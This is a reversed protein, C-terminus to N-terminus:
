YEDRSGWMFWTLIITYFLMGVAVVIMTNQNHKPMFWFLASGGVYGALLLLFYEGNGKPKRAPMSSKEPTYIRRAFEDRRVNERLMKQVNTQPDKSEPAAWPQKEERPKDRKVLRLPSRPRTETPEPM